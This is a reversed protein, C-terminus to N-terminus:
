HWKCLRPIGGMYRTDAYAGMRREFSSPKGNGSPTPHYFVDLEKLREQCFADEAQGLFIYKASLAVMPAEAPSAAVLADRARTVVALVLIDEDL